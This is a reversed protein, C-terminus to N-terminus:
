AKKEITILVSGTGRVRFAGNAINNWDGGDIAGWWTVQNPGGPLVRNDWTLYEVPSTPDNRFTYLPPITVWGSWCDPLPYVTLQSAGEGFQYQNPEGACIPLTGTTASATTASASAEIAEFGGQIFISSLGLLSLLPIVALKKAKGLSLFVTTAMLLLVGLVLARENAVPVFSFYIGVLLELGIVKASWRLAATGLDKVTGALSGLAKPKKTKSALTTIIGLEVLGAVWQEWKFALLLVTAVIMGVTIAPVAVRAFEPSPLAFGAFVIPLLAISVIFWRVFRRATGHVNRAIAQPSRPARDPDATLLAAVLRGMDKITDAM